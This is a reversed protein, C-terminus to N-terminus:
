HRMSANRGSRTSIRSICNKRRLGYDYQQRAEGTFVSVRTGEGALDELWEIGEDMLVSYNGAVHVSTVPIMREADNCEGYAALIEMAKRAGRGGKGELMDKQEENLEM